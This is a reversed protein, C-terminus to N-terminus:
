GKWSQIDGHDVSITVCCPTTKMTFSTVSILHSMGSVAYVSLTYVQSRGKEKKFYQLTEHRWQFEAILDDHLFSSLVLLHLQETDFFLFLEEQKKRM